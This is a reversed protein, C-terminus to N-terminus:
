RPIVTYVTYMRILPNKSFLERVNKPLDKFTSAYYNKFIRAKILYTRSLINNKFNIYLYIIFNKLFIDKFNMKISVGNKSIVEYNLIENIFGKM